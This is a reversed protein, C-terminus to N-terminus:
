TRMQAAPLRRLDIGDEVFTPAAATVPGGFSNVGDVVPRRSAGRERRLRFLDRVTEFRLIEHGDGGSRFGSGRGGGSGVQRQGAQVQHASAIQEHTDSEDHDFPRQKGM